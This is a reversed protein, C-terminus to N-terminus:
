QNESLKVVHAGDGDRELGELDAGGVEPKGQLSTFFYSFLIPPQRSPETPLLVPEKESPGSNLDWCGWPPKCGGMILDSV